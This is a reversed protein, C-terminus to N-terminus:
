RLRNVVDKFQIDCNWKPFMVITCDKSKMAVGEKYGDKVKVFQDSRIREDFWASMSKPMQKKCIDMSESFTLKKM